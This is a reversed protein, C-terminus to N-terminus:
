EGPGDGRALRALVRDEMGPPPPALPRGRLLRRTKAVQDLYRRCMACMMLHLRVGLRAGFPLAGEAYDTVLETVADCKLM